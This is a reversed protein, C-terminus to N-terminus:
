KGGMDVTPANERGSHGILLLLVCLLELDPLSRLRNWKGPGFLGVM